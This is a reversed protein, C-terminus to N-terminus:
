GGGGKSKTTKENANKTRKGRYCHLYFSIASYNRVATQKVVHKHTNGGKPDKHAGSHPRGLATSNFVPLQNIRLKLRKAPKWHAITKTKKKPQKNKKTWTATNTGSRAGFPGEGWWWAFWWCGVKIEWHGGGKEGKERRWVRFALSIVKRWM